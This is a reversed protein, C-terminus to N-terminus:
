MPPPYKWRTWSACLCEMLVVAVFLATLLYQVFHICVGLTMSTSPTMRAKTDELGAGNTDNFDSEDESEDMESSVSGGDSDTDSDDDTEDTSEVGDEDLGVLEETRGQMDQYDSEFDIADMDIPM